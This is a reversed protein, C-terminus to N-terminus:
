SASSPFMGQCPFDGLAFFHFFQKNGWAMPTDFYARDVQGLGAFLSWASGFTQTLGAQTLRLAKGPANINSFDQCVSAVDDGQRWTAMLGVDARANRWLKAGLELDLRNAWAAQGNRLNFQGETM